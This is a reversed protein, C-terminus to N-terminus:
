MIPKEADDFIQVLSRVMDNVVAAAAASSMYTVLKTTPCLLRHIKGESFKNQLM